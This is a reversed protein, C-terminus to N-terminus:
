EPKINAARIVKAWKATDSKILGAFEEPSNLSTELGLQAIRERVDAQAATQAVDAHVKSVVAAPTGAPALLGFWSIAEFDPFGSEALTPLESIIASRKLSTVALGRLKGDRVLPLIASMNQLTMTVRGSIVDTLIAGRYPVHAIDVGALSKLLEGAIHQPTGVGPSAFSCSEPSPRRSCL